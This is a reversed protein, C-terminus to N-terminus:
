TVQRARRRAIDNAEGALDLINARFVDLAIQRAETVSIGQYVMISGAQINTSNSGAEQTQDSVQLNMSNDGGNQIQSRQLHRKAFIWGVIAIPVAILVGGFLWEKNAIIWDIDAGICNLLSRVSQMFPDLRM